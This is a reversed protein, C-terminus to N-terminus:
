ARVAYSSGATGNQLSRKSRKPRKHGLLPTPSISSETLGLESSNPPRQGLPRLFEVSYLRDCEETVISGGSGWSLYEDITERDIPVPVTAGQEERLFDWSLICNAMFVAALAGVMDATTLKSQQMAFTAAAGARVSLRPELYM